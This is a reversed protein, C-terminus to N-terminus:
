TPGRLQGCGARIRLGRSYRVTCPIRAQRLLSRFREIKGTPSPTLRCHEVPNMPILNVHAPLQGILSILRKADRESDNVGEVMVYEFTIRQGTTRSYDRCAAILEGLPVRGARPLLRLRTDSDAAHLSVALKVRYPERALSRIQRPLGITSVTIHRPSLALGNPDCLRAIAETTSSYNLLPEGMGMFVVNTIRGGPSVQRVHRAFHVFQYVIEGVSLNRVFGIQGTACIACAMSCGVQTSVCVTNGHKGQMLVTEIKQGDSLQLAVKWTGSQEDVLTDVVTAPQLSYRRSLQRRLRAPLDTMEAFADSYERHAWSWIQDARYRPEGIERIHTELEHFSVDFFNTLDSQM